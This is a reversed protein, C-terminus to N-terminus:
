VSTEWVMRLRSLRQWSLDFWIIAMPLREQGLLDSEIKAWLWWDVVLKSHPPLSGCKLERYPWRCHSSAELEKGTLFDPLSLLLRQIYFLMCPKVPNRCIQSLTETLAMYTPSAPGAALLELLGAEAVISIFISIVTTRGVALCNCITGIM